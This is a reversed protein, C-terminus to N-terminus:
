IERLEKTQFSRVQFSLVGMSGRSGFGPLAEELGGALDKGSLAEALGGDPLDTTTGPGVEGGDIVV